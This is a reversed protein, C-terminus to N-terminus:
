AGLWRVNPRKGLDVHAVGYRMADCGHDNLKLPEEKNPKGDPSPAWVYGPLEEVTSCPLKAEDLLPDRELLVDRMFLLRPAGDGAPRLRAQVAEIGQLVDKKAPVTPIGLHKRLTARGEADHDCIIAVPRPEKWRGDKSVAKLMTRAHDEVLQQTMYLERYMTLRGDPDQSWWQCVFPNTYGFDVVWYRPWDKPTPSRDILHVAPDYDGYIIGEAAVWLGKRLRARRVGTLQDLRGIYQRGADTMTGDPHFYIPNDEHRSELLTTQGRDCRLKLWHTPHAPNTDGIIQQFSIRQNRLRTSISEWDNETLEVAEQVFCVDWESSMIKTPKDMGGIGVMSGNSYYFGAPEKDSGGFYRVIGANEAEPIVFRRWTQLATAALSARTKRIILGKFGPNCLALLHLKELAARSKGTGAPGGLLIEPDQCEFISRAAGRPAFTHEVEATTV